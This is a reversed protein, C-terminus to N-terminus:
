AALTNFPWTPGSLPQWPRNQAPPAHKVTCIQPAAHCQSNAVKCVGGAAASMETHQKSNYVRGGAQMLQSLLRAMSHALM